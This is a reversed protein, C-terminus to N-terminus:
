KSAGQPQRARTTTAQANAGVALSDAHVDGGQVLIGSNLITTSRERLDSTDVGHEDLFSILEELVRKEVLKHFLDADSKQFYHHYYSQAFRERLSASAGFDYAPDREIAVRRNRAAAANSTLTRSAQEIAKGLLFLPAVAMSLPGLVVAGLAIGITSALRDPQMLDVSRYAAALPALLFTKTEVLLTRGRKEVRIFYSFVIDGGWDTVQILLYHRGLPDAGLMMAEARAENIRQRPFAALDGGLIDADDRIDTGAVFFMRRSSLEAIALTGVAGRLAEYLDAITFPRISSPAGELKPKDTLVAISWGGLEAGAGVFPNFGSYVVLEDGPDPLRTHPRLEVDFARRAQQASYAGPRFHKALRRTQFAHRAAVIMAAVGALLAIPPFGAMALWAILGLVGMAMASRLFRRREATAVRAVLGIDVGFEPALAKWNQEFSRLIQARFAEAGLIAQGCLLRTVQDQGRTLPPLRAPASRLSGGGDRSGTAGGTLRVLGMLVAVKGIAFMNAPYDLLRALGDGGSMSFPLIAIAAFAIISAIVWGAPTANLRSGLLAAGTLAWIIANAVCFWLYQDSVGPEWDLIIDFPEAPMGSFVAYVWRSLPASLAGVAAFVILAPLMAPRNQM